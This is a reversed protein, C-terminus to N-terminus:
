DFLSASATRYDILNDSNLAFSVSKKIKQKEWHKKLLEDTPFGFPFIYRNLYDVTIQKKNKKQKYKLYYLLLIISGLGKSFGILYVIGLDSIKLELYQARKKIVKFHHTEFFTEKLNKNYVDVNLGKNQESEIGHLSIIFMLDDKSYNVNEKKSLDIELPECILKEISNETQTHKAELM